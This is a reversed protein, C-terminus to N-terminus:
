LNWNLEFCLKSSQQLNIKQVRRMTGSFLACFHLVNQFLMTFTGEHTQGTACHVRPARCGGIQATMQQTPQTDRTWFWFRKLNQIKKKWIKLSKSTPLSIAWPHSVLGLFDHRKWPHEMIMSRLYMIGYRWHVQTQDTAQSILDARSYEAQSM